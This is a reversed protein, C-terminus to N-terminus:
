KKPIRVLKEAIVDLRSNITADIVGGDTEILCSGPGLQKDEEIRFEKISGAKGFWYDYRAQIIEYDGPSVKLVLKETNILHALAERVIDEVIAPDTELSRSILTEAIAVSLDIVKRELNGTWNMQLNKAEALLSEIVSVRSSFRADLSSEHDTREKEIGEEFGRDHGTKYAERTVREHDRKISAIYEKVEERWQERSADIRHTFDLKAQPDAKETSLKPPIYKSVVTKNDITVSDKVTNRKIIESM